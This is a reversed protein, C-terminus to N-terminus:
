GYIYTYMYTYIYIHIYIYIYIYTYIYIYYSAPSRPPAPRLFSTCAGPGWGLSFFFIFLVIGAAAAFPGFITATAGAAGAAGQQVFFAALM